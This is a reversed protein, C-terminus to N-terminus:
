TLLSVYPAHKALWDEVQVMVDAFLPAADVDAQPRTRTLRPTLVITVTVIKKAVQQIGTLQKCFSSLVPHLRPRCYSRFEAM